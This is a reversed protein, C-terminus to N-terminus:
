KKEFIKTIEKKKSSPLKSLKLTQEALIRYMPQEEASLATWHAAITNSDGRMIPGTLAAQPELQDLQSLSQQMLQNVLQATHEPPLALPQLINRAYANLTVLFNASVSLAAHYRKKQTASLQFDKLQAARALQSLLSLTETNGEIACFHEPLNETANKIDTFPFVPHLSGILPTIKQLPALAHSSLAGSFHLVLTQPTLWSCHQITNAIHTISDDNVGIAVIDAQPFQNIDNIIRSAPLYQQATQAKKQHRNWIAQTIVLGSQQWLIALTTAVRGTGIINLRWKAPNM